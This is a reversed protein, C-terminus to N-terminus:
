HDLLVLKYIYMYIFIYIYIYNIILYDGALRPRVIQSDFRIMQHEGSIGNDYCGIIIGAPWRNPRLGFTTTTIPPRGRPGRAVRSPRNSRTFL